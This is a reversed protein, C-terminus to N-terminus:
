AAVEGYSLFRAIAQCLAEPTPAAITVGGGDAVRARAIETLHATRTAVATAMCTGCDSRWCHLDPYASEIDALATM